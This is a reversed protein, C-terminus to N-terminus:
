RPKSCGPGATKGECFFPNLSDCHADNIYRDVGEWFHACDENNDDNPEGAGWYEAKVPVGNNWNWVGKGYQDTAGLWPNGWGAFM